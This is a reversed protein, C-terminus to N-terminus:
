PFHEGGNFVLEDPHSCYDQQVLYPKQNSSFPCCMSQAAWDAVGCRRGLVERFQDRAVTGIYMRREDVGLDEGFNWGGDIFPARLVIDGKDRCALCWRLKLESACFVQEDGGFAQL